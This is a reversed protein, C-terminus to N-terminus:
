IKNINKIFIQTIVSINMKCQEFVDIKYSKELPNNEKYPWHVMIFEYQCRAWYQHKLKSLIFETYQETNNPRKSKPLDLYESILYPMIDYYTPEKNNFELLLVNYPIMNIKKTTYILYYKKIKIRTRM